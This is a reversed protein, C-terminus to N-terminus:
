HKCPAFYNRRCGIAELGMEIYNEGRLKLTGLLRKEKYEGVLVSDYKGHM